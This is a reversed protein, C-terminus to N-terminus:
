IVTLLVYVYAAVLGASVTVGFIHVPAFTSMALACFSLATTIFSVAIACSTLRNTANHASEFTYVIYDMGLGFVLLLGNFSFFGIPIHCLTLVSLTVLVIFVPISAIVLLRKGDYFFHFSFVIIVYAGLLLLCLRKTIDDLQSSIDKVKNVFFVHDNEQAFAKLTETAPMHLPIVATYWRNEIEGIYVSSLVQNFIEPTDMGITISRNQSQIYSEYVSETDASSFGFQEMQTGVRDMLVACAKWSSKQQKVTPIFQTTALYWASPIGQMYTDLKETLLKEQELVEQESNGQVIYYWGSTGYSMLAAVQKEHELLSGKMTYLTTIDNNITVEKRHIVLVIVSFLCIGLLVFRSMRSGLLQRIDRRAHKIPIQKVDFRKAPLPLLPYLCVVTLYSSLIGIFSFLGVQKLLAFPSIILLIFCIETSLLSLSLGRLLHSRIAEGSNLTINMKWQMFFHISYDLCTGILTTGFVFTLIHIRHFVALCTALASLASICIAILSLVIPKGSHFLFALLLVVLSLSVISIIRIEQQASSSSEYSHFPVGSYIFSYDKGEDTQQIRRVCDYIQRIGSESNSLSVGKPTLVVRLLVYWNEEYCTTIVGDILSLSSVGQTVSQLLRKTHLETLLFPDDYIYDLPTLTFAGYATELAMRSLENAYASGQESSSLKQIDQDTLFQYRYTFLFQSLEAIADNDVSLQISEIGSCAALEKELTFAAKKATERDSAKSFIIVNRETRKSLVTDAKGVIHMDHSAPLIDFLSTTIAYPTKLVFGLLLAIVIAGHFIFWSNRFWLTTKRNM